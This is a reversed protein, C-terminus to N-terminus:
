SVRLMPVGNRVPSSHLSTAKGAATITEVSHIRYQYKDRRGKGTCAERRDSQQHRLASRLVLQSLERPHWTCVQMITLSVKGNNCNHVQCGIPAWNPTTIPLVM